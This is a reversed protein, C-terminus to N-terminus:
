AGEMQSAIKALRDLIRRIYGREIMGGWHGDSFREWRVFFTLMTRIQELTAMEIGNPQELLISAQEPSYGTDLGILTSIAGVFDTVLPDYEPFPVTISGDARREGGRWARVPTFGPAYLKEGIALLTDVDQRSIPM